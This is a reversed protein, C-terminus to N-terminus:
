DLKAGAKRRIQMYIKFTLGQLEAARGLADRKTSYSDPIPKHPEDVKHVYYRRGAPEKSVTYLLRMRQVKKRLQEMLYDPSVDSLTGFWQSYVFEQIERLNCEPPLPRSSGIGTRLQIYDDAAQKVIANALLHYGMM